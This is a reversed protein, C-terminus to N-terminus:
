VFTITGMSSWNTYGQDVAFAQMAEPVSTYSATLYDNIYALMRGSFDGEPIAAADFLASWDGNYDLATSTQGRVSSQQLGQNTTM